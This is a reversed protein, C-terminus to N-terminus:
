RRIRKVELIWSAVLLFMTAAHLEDGGGIPDLAAFIIEETSQWKMPCAHLCKTADAQVTM